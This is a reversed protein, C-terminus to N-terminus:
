SIWSVGTRGTIEWVGDIKELIYTTGGAGLNAIYISGAAQVSGDEQLYINGLTIIAGGGKVSGGTGEEFEANKFEDIWIIEASLTNLADTIRNQVTQLILAPQSQKGIPNGAKDDTSRIIYLTPPNLHGGYTDDVTALQRVVVAYIAAEDETTLSSAPRDTKCAAPIAILAVFVALSLFFLLRNQMNNGRCFHLVFVLLVRFAKLEARRYNELAALQM